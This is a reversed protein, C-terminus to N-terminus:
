ERKLDTMFNIYKSNILAKGAIARLEGFGPLITNWFKMLVGNAKANYDKEVKYDYQEINKRLDALDKKLQLRLKPSLRKDELDDEITSICVSLRAATNPHPDLIVIERFAAIICGFIHGLLPTHNLVESTGAVNFAEMKKLATVLEPGYGHMSAFSDAAVENGYGHALNFFSAATDKKVIDTLTSFNKIRDIVIKILNIHNPINKMLVQYPWTLVINLNTNFLYTIFNYLNSILIIAPAFKSKMMKNFFYKYLNFMSFGRAIKMSPDEIAFLELNIDIINSVVTLGCLVPSLSNQFNHGVEHMIIAMIEGNSFRDDLFMPLGIAIITSVKWKPDYHYGSKGVKSIIGSLVGYDLTGCVSITLGNPLATSDLLLTVSYFGFQKEILHVLHKWPETSEIQAFIEPTLTADLARAAIKGVTGSNKPAKISKRKLIARIQGVCKEMELCAKPKGFYAEQIYDYNIM